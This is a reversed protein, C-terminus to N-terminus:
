NVEESKEGKKLEKLIRPAQKPDKDVENFSAKLAGLEKRYENKKDELSSIDEEAKQYLQKAQGLAAYAEKLLADDDESNTKIQEKKKELKDQEFKSEEQKPSSKELEAIKDKQEKIIKALKTKKEKAEKIKININNLDQNIKNVKKIILRYVQIQPDARVPLPVEPISPYQISGGAYGEASNNGYERASSYRGALAAEQAQLAWYVSNRLDKIAKTKSEYENIHGSKLALTTDSKKFGLAEKGKLQSILREKDHSFETNNNNAQRIVDKINRNFGRVIRRYEAMKERRNISDNNVSSGTGYSAQQYSNDSEDYGVCHMHNTLSPDGSDYVAQELAATCEDETNFYGTREPLNQGAYKAMVDRIYEDYEIQWYAAAEFTPMLFVALFLVRRLVRFKKLRGVM